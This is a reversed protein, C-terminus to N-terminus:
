RHDILIPSFVNERWFMNFPHFECLFLSAARSNNSEQLKSSVLCYKSIVFKLGDEFIGLETEQWKCWKSFLGLSSRIRLREVLEFLPYFLNPLTTEKRCKEGPADFELCSFTLNHWPKSFRRTEWPKEEKNNIERTSQINNVLWLVRAPHVSPQIQSFGM